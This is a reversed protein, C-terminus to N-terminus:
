WSLTVWQWRSILWLLTRYIDGPSSLSSASQRTVQTANSLDKDNVKIIQDGQVLKGTNEAVGGPVLASIFVGPGDRRGVLSLGLGKGAKKGLTVTLDQYLVPSESSSTEPRREFCVTVKDQASRLHELAQSHSLKTFDVANM